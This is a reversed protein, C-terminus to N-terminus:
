REESPTLVADMFMKGFDTITISGQVIEIEKDESLSKKYDLIIPHEELDKYYEKNTYSEQFSGTPCSIINLRELNSLYSPTLDPYELKAKDGLTTFNIFAYVHGKSEGEKPKTKLRVDIKPLVEEDFLTQVLRAEDPSLESIVNVFSPHAKQVKNKDMANALLNVFMWSLDESEHIYKYKELLPGVVQLRPTVINEPPTKALRKELRNKLQEKIVGYGYVMAELPALAVNVVGGLTKLAKGVEQAVPQAADQYVPVAKIIEAAVKGVGEIEDKNM